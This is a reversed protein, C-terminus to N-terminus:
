LYLVSENGMNFLLDMVSLDPLFGHKVSFVQYYERVTHSQKEKPHFYERLDVVNNALIGCYSDTLKMEVDMQLLELVKATIELNFDLLFDWKKHYFPAFDDEYYEFVSEDWVGFCDIAM